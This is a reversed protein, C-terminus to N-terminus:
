ARRASGSTRRHGVKLRLVSNQLCSAREFLSDMAALASLRIRSPSKFSLEAFAHHAPPSCYPSASKNWGVISGVDKMAGNMFALANM